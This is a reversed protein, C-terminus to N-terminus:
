TSDILEMLERIEAESQPGPVHLPRLMEHNSANYRKEIIMNYNMTLKAIRERLENRGKVGLWHWENRYKDQCAVIREMLDDLIKDKSTDNIIM